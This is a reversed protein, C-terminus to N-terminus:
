SRTQREPLKRRQSSADFINCLVGTNGDGGDRVHEVAGAVGTGLGALADEGGNAFEAVRLVLGGSVERAAGAGEEADDDGVDAVGEEGFDGAAKWSCARAWSM